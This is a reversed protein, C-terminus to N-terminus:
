SAPRKMWVTTTGDGPDEEFDHQFGFREYFKLANGNGKVFELRVDRPGIFEIAASMLAAGVGKGHESPLVYIKWIVADGEFEGITCTGVTREEDLAVLTTDTMISERVATESWWSNLNALVYEPSTFPLYTPPWTLLGIEQISQVDDLIAPRIELTMRRAYGVLTM